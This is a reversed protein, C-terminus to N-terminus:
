IENRLFLEEAKRRGTNTKFLKNISRRIQERDMNNVVEKFNVLNDADWIIRFELTDINKASHHNAIIKCVDENIEVPVGCKEMIKEAIPPGEIEQYKGANSAYKREAEHIGIDHLIAAATVVLINGGECDQIQEAFDLVSLAHIIRKSDSGFLVKMQKTMADKWSVQNQELCKQM